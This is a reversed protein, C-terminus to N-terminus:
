GACSRVVGGGHRLEVIQRQFYNEFDEAVVCDGVVAVRCGYMREVRERACVLVQVGEDLLVRAPDELLM